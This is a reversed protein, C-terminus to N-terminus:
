KNKQSERNKKRLARLDEAEKVQDKWFDSLIKSDEIEKKIEESDKIIKEKKSPSLDTKTALKNQNVALKKEFKKTQRDQKKLGKKAQKLASTSNQTGWANMSNQMFQNHRNMSRAMNMHSNMQANCLQLSGVILVLVILIKKKM